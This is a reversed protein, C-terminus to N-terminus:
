ALGPTGDNAPRELLGATGRVVCRLPDDVVVVGIEAMAEIRDALGTLLAGGGSVRVKGRVVDEALGAPIDSLIEHVTDAIMAVIPDLAAAVLDGPVKEVRPTRRGADIGVVEAWGAEGGTLGLTMKLQRAARRSLILGLQARAANVIADDMANGATRLSKARVVRWGAVAAVETTGGGVDIVFGGQGKSLDLGSGAAAAVPEDILQVTYRPRRTSLVALISRREVWTAGAPVCVMARPRLPGGRGRARRLFAHLMEATADLDAVVGDQLPYIVRIDQPEKDALVDAATGVAVVSGTTTDVAIASPEEVVIGRGAVWILTNVTGLDIAVSGRIRV